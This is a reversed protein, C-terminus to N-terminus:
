PTSAPCGLVNEFSSRFGMQSSGLTPRFARHPKVSSFHPLGSQQSAEVARFWLGPLHSLDEKNDTEPLFDREKVQQGRGWFVMMLDLATLAPCLGLFKTM